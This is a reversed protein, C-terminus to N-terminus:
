RAGIADTTELSIRGSLPDIGTLVDLTSDAIVRGDPWATAAYTADSDRVIVRQPTGSQLAERRARAIQDRQSVRGDRPRARADRFAMGVVAFTIGIVALVVILEILTAGAAASPCKRIM